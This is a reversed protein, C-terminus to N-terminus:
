GPLAGREFAFVHRLLPVIDGPASDRLSQGNDPDAPAAARSM